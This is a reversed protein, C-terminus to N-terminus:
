KRWNRFKTIKVHITLGTAAADVVWLDVQDRIQVVITNNHWHDEGEAAAAAAAAAAATL